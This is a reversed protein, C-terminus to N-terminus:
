AVSCSRAFSLCWSTSCMLVFEGHAFVFGITFRPLRAAQLPPSSPSRNSRPRRPVIDTRRKLALHLLPTRCRAKIAKHHELCPLSLYPLRIRNPLLLSSFGLRRPSSSPFGSVHARPTLSPLALFARACGPPQSPEAWTPLPSSFFHAACPLAPRLPASGPQSSLQAL